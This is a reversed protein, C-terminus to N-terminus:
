REGGEWRDPVGWIWTRVTDSTDGLRHYGPCSDLRDSLSEGPIEDPFAQGSRSSEMEDLWAGYDAWDEETPAYPLLADALSDPDPDVILGPDVEFATPDSDAPNVPAATAHYAEM